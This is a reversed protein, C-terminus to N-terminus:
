FNLPYYGILRALPALGGNDYVVGDVVAFWHHTSGILYHGRAPVHDLVDRGTVASHYGRANKTRARISKFNGIKAGGNRAAVMLQALWTGQGPKRGTDALLAQAVGYEVCLLASLAHVGCDNRDSFNGPRRQKIIVNV